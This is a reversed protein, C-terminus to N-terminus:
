TRIEFCLTAKPLFFFVTGIVNQPCYIQDSIYKILIGILMFEAKWFLEKLTEVKLFMWITNKFVNLSHTYGIKGNKGIELLIWIYTELDIKFKIIKTLRKRHRSQIRGDEAIPFLFFVWFYQDELKAKKGLHLHILFCFHFLIQPIHSLSDRYKM